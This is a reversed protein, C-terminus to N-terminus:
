WNMCYLSVVHISLSLYWLILVQDAQLGTVDGASLDASLYRYHGITNGSHYHRFRPFETAYASRLQITGLGEHTHAIFWM